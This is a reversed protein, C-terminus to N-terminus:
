FWVGVPLGVPGWGLQDLIMIVGPRGEMRFSVLSLCAGGEFGVSFVRQFSISRTQM